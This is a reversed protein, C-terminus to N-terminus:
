EIRPRRVVDNCVQSEKEHECQLLYNKRVM